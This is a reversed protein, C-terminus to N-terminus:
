CGELQKFAEKVADVIRSLYEYKHNPGEPICRFWEEGYIRSLISNSDQDCLGYLEIDDYINRAREATIVRKKRDFFLDKKVASELEHGELPVTSYLRSTLNGILYDNGCDMFFESISRGGMGGWYSSWSEGYCEIIIKGKGPEIDEVVVTVPDLRDVNTIHIKQVTTQEIKM